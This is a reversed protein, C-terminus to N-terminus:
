EFWQVLLAILFFYQMLIELDLEAGLMHQVDVNEWEVVRGRETWRLWVMWMLQLGWALKM